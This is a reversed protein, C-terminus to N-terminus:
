RNGFTPVCRIGSCFSLYNTFFFFFFFDLKNYRVQEHWFGLAHSIEHIATGLRECGRGISVKQEGGVRGVM